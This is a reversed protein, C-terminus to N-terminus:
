LDGKGVGEIKKERGGGDKTGKKERKLKRDKGSLLVGGSSM